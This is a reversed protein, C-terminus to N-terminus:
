PIIPPTRTPSPLPTLTAPAPTTTPPAPAAGPGDLVYWGGATMLGLLLLLAGLLWPPARRARPVPRTISPAEEEDNGEGVQIVIVSINDSGGARNAAEILSETAQHPAHRALLPGIQEPSLHETLGDSCLLLRDGEQLPFPAAVEVEVTPQTGIARSIVNRLPHHTAEDPALTGAELQEEIPSHDRTMQRLTGGRWLYLRSDGVHAIHLTDKHIAAVVVTTGMGQLAEEQATRHVVHNARELAIRLAEGPPPPSGYFVQEIQEAAIRSAVEGAQHGGMGDAVIFLAGHSHPARGEVIRTCDENLRRYRGVDSRAHSTIQMM